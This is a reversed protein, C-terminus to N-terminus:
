QGAFTHLDMGRRTSFVCGRLKPIAAELFLSTGNGTGNEPEYRLSQMAKGMQKCEAQSARKRIM